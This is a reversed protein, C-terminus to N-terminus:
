EECDSDFLPKWIRKGCDVVRGCRDWDQVPACELKLNKAVLNRVEYDALAPDFLKRLCRFLQNQPFKKNIQAGLRPRLRLARGVMLNIPPTLTKVDVEGTPDARGQARDVM